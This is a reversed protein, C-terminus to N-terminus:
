RLPFEFGSIRIQSGALAARMNRKIRYAAPRELVIGYPPTVARLFEEVVLPRNVRAINRSAKLLEAVSAFASQLPTDEIDTTAQRQVHGTVLRVM